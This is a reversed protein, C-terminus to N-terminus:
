RRVSVEGPGRAEAEVVLRRSASEFGPDVYGTRAHRGDTERGLVDVDGWRAEATVAVAVDSPLIVDLEGVGISAEVRTEGLPVELRRLDLELEGFGLRYEPKLESVSAPREVRDGIGGKVGAAAIAGGVV